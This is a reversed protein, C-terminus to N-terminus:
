TRELSSILDAICYYIVLNQDTWHQFDARGNVVAEPLVCSGCKSDGKGGKAWPMPGLARQVVEAYINQHVLAISSTNPETNMVPVTRSDRRTVEGVNRGHHGSGRIIADCAKRRAFCWHKLEEIKSFRGDAM